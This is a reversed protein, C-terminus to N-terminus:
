EDDNRLPIHNTLLSARKISDKGYKTRIKDLAQDLQAQKATSKQAAKKSATTQLPAYDFLNLQVPEAIDTLKGTRIGLLRIPTHNWLADFLDCSNKYIIENVSTPTHLQTQHSVSVFTAYKIEVCITSANQKADRLRQGVKESLKRLVIRAEETTVADKPLTTSNGIGKLQYPESDLPSDDIGNAYEWLLQGHSKLHLCLLAPDTKALDGITNIELKQLTAVSAHGAMFLESVPLPWMKEQIECPFLTHVKNPKEFDSAMKALLKNSSIGVNVTFGFRKYITDKIYCAGAVPSEFNHAIGTFDLYCEDISVQEIDPTLSCLFDIFQHSYIHYMAHNSPELVLNPCKQLAKAVPEATQVHYKKAPVSKALIIGHRSARDGGIASPITRLDVANPDKKLKEVASWSLFASNVDIHFIIREM